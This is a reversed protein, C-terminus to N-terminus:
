IGHPFLEQELRECVAHLLVAHIEQIRPTSRSPVHFRADCGDLIPNGAEGVFAITKMGRERAAQLASLVNPSKGSTTFVVLADGPRGLAEVQLAFIREFGFDNALSTTVCADPSLAVAALPPRAIMFRGVIEAVFHQADAASGGNGCALIKGGSRLCEVLLSSARRIPEAASQAMEEALRSVERLGACPDLDSM